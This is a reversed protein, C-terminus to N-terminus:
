PGLEIDKSTNSSCREHLPRELCVQCYKVHWIWKASTPHGGIIASVWSLELGLCWQLPQLRKVRSSRPAGNKYSPSPTRPWRYVKLEVWKELWFGNWILLAQLTLHLILDRFGNAAQPIHAKLQWGHVRSLILELSPKKLHYSDGFLFLHRHRYSCLCLPEYFSKKKM